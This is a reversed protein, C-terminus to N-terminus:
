HFIPINKIQGNELYYAIYSSKPRQPPKKPIVNLLNAFIMAKNEDNIPLSPESSPTEIIEPNQPNSYIIQHLPPYNDYNTMLQSLEGVQPKSHLNIQFTNDDLRSISVIIRTQEAIGNNNELLVDIPLFIRYGSQLVNNILSIKTLRRVLTILKEQWPPRKIIEVLAQPPEAQPTSKPASRTLIEVLPQEPKASAQEPLIEVLPQEPPPIIPQSSSFIRSLNHITIPKITQETPQQATQSRAQSLAEQLARQFTRQFLQQDDIKGEFFLRMTELPVDDTAAAVEQKRNESARTMMLTRECVAFAKSGDPLRMAVILQQKGPPSGLSLGFCQRIEQLIPIEKIEPAEGEEPIPLFYLTGFGTKVEIGIQERAQAETKGIVPRLKYFADFALASLYSFSLPQEDSQPPLIVEGKRAEDSM